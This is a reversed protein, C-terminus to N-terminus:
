AWSLVVTQKHRGEIYGGDQDKEVVGQLSPVGITPSRCSTMDNWKQREFKEWTYMHAGGTCYNTTSGNVSVLFAHTHVNM